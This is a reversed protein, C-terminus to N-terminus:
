TEAWLALDPALNRQMCEGCGLGSAGSYHSTQVDQWACFTVQSCKSFTGVALLSNAAQVAHSM